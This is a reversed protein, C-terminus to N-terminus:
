IRENARSKPKASLLPAYRLAKRLVRIPSKLASSAILAIALGKYTEGFIIRLDTQAQRLSANASGCIKCILISEYRHLEHLRHSRKKM